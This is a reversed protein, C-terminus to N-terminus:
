SILEDRNATRQESATQQENNATQMYTHRRLRLM